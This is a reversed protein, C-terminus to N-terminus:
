NIKKNGSIALGVGTSLCIVDNKMITGHTVSSAFDLPIGRPYIKHILKQRLKLKGLDFRILVM